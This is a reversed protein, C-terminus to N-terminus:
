ILLIVRKHFELDGVSVSEIDDDDPVSFGVNRVDGRSRKQFINSIVSVLIIFNRFYM